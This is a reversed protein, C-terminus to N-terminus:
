EGPSRAPPTLRAWEVLGEGVFVERISQVEAGKYYDLCLDDHDLRGKSGRDELLVVLREGVRILDGGGAGERSWPLGEALDVAQWVLEDYSVQAADLMQRVVALKSFAVLNNSWVTLREAVVPLVEPDAEIQTLGFVRSPISLNGPLTAVVTPFDAVREPLDEARSSFFRARPSIQSEPGFIEIRVHFRRTGFRPRVDVGQQQLRGAANQIEGPISWARPWDARFLERFHFDELDVPTSVQLFPSYGEVTFWLIRIEDTGQWRRLAEQPVEQGDLVLRRTESYYIPAGSWSEAELVAHLSFPTGAEVEVPGTKAVGDGAVEIAVRVGRLEPSLREEVIGSLALVAIVLMVAAVVSWLVKQESTM